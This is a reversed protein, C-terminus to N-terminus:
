DRSTPYTLWVRYTFEGNYMLSDLTFEITVDKSERFGIHVSQTKSFSIQTPQDTIEAWVVTRRNWGPNYLSVDIAVWIYNSLLGDGRRLTSTIIEVEAELTFFGAFFLALIMALAILVVVAVFYVRTRRRSPVPQSTSSHRPSVPAESRMFLGECSSQMM